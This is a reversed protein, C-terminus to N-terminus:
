SCDRFLTTRLVSTQVTPNGTTSSLLIQLTRGSGPLLTMLLTHRPVMRYGSELNEIYQKSLTKLCRFAFRWKAFSRIKQRKREGTTHFVKRGQLTIKLLVYILKAMDCFQGHCFVSETQKGIKVLLDDDSINISKWLEIFANMKGILHHLYASHQRMQFGYRSGNKNYKRLM